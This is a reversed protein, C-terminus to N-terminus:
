QFSIQNHKVSCHGSLKAHSMAVCFIACTSDGVILRLNVVKSNTSQHMGIIFQGSASM